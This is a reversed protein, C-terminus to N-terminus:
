VRRKKREEKKGDTKDRKSIRRFELDQSRKAIQVKRRPSRM